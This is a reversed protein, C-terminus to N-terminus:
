YTAGAKRDENIRDIAWAATYEKKCLRCKLKGSEYIDFEHSCEPTAIYEVRADGKKREHGVVEGTDLWIFETGGDKTLRPWSRRARFPHEHCFVEHDGFTKIVGTGNCGCKPHPKPKSGGDHWNM